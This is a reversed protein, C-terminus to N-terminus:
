LPRRRPQARRLARRAGGPRGRGPRRRHGSGPLLVGLHIIAGRRPRGGRRAGLLGPVRLLSKWLTKM